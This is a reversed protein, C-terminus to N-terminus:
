IILDATWMGKAVPSPEDRLPVFGADEAMLAMQLFRHSCLLDDDLQVGVPYSSFIKSGMDTIRFPFISAQRPHLRRSDLQRLRATSREDSNADVIELAVLAM